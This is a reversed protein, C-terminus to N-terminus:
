RVDFSRDTVRLLAEQLAEQVLAGSRSELFDPDSLVKLAVDYRGWRSVLAVLGEGRGGSALQNADKMFDSRAAERQLRDLERKITSEENEYLPAGAANAMPKLEDLLQEASEVEKISSWGSDPDFIQFALIGGIIRREQM